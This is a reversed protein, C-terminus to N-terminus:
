SENQLKVEVAKVVLQATLMEAIEEPDFMVNFEEELALILELHTFSDWLGKENINDYIESDTKKTTKSIISIIKNKM